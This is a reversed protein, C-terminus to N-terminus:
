LLMEQLGDHRDMRGDENSLKLTGQLDLLSYVDAMEPEPLRCLRPLHYFVSKLNFEAWPDFANLYFDSAIRELNKNSGDKCKYIQQFCNTLVSYKQALEPDSSILRLLNGVYVFAYARTAFHQAMTWHSIKSLVGDYDKTLTAHHYYITLFSHVSGLGKAVVEDYKEDIKEM